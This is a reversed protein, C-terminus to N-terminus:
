DGGPSFDGASSDFTGHSVCAGIVSRHVGVPPGGWCYDLLGEAGPAARRHVEAAAAAIGCTRESAADVPRPSPVAAIGAVAVEDPLM